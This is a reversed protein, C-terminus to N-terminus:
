FFFMYNMEYGPNMRWIYIIHVMRTSELIGLFNAFFEISFFYNGMKPISFPLARLINKWLESISDECFFVRITVAFSICEFCKEPYNRGINAGSSIEGELARDIEVQHLKSFICELTDNRFERFFIDGISTYVDDIWFTSFDDTIDSVM